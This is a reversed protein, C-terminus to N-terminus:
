EVKKRPLNVDYKVAVMRGVFIAAIIIYSVVTRDIEMYKVATWYIAAGVIAFLAYVEEKLIFPIETILVDRIAGGAVGTLTAMIVTGLMGLGASMGKDAGLITFFALGAADFIRILFFYNKVKKCLIYAAISIAIAIYMDRENVVSAPVTNLIVDRLIGGGFATIIGLVVVGLIDLNKKVGALVGSISFAAVGAINLIEIIM